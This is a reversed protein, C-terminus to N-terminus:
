CQSLSLLLLLYYRHTELTFVFIAMARARPYSSTGLKDKSYPGTDSTVSVTTGCKQCDNAELDPSPPEAQEEDSHKVAVQYKVHIQRLEIQPEDRLEFADDQRFERRQASSQHSYSQGTTALSLTKYHRGM